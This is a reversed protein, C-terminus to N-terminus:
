YVCDDAYMYKGCTVVQSCRSKIEPSVHYADYMLEVPACNDGISYITLNCGHPIKFLPIADPLKWLGDVLEAQFSQAGATLTVSRYGADPVCLNKIIDDCREGVPVIARFPPSTTSPANEIKRRRSASVQDLEQMIDALLVPEKNATNGM